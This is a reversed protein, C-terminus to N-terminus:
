KEKLICYFRDLASFNQGLTFIPRKLASLIFNWPNFTSMNPLYCTVLSVLHLIHDNYLYCLYCMGSKKRLLVSERRQGHLLKLLAKFDADSASKWITILM